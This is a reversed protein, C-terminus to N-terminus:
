SLESQVHSRWKTKTFFEVAAWFANDGYVVVKLSIDTFSNLHCRSSCILNIIMVRELM